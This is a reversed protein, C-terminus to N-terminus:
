CAVSKPKHLVFHIRESTDTPKELTYNSYTGLTEFGAQIAKEQIHSPSYIRQSHGEELKKYLGKEQEIFYTFVNLQLKNDEEYWSDRILTVDEREEYQVTDRFYTQSNYETTIDFVFFGGPTLVRYVEKLCQLVSEEELLYNLSDYIMWVCDFTSKFPLSIADASAYSCPTESNDDRKAELLMATSLDTYTTSVEKPLFPQRAFPCTGAAIELTNKPTIQHHKLLRALYAGWHEYDVHEM